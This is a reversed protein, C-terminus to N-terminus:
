SGRGDQEGLVLSGAGCSTRVDADVKGWQEKSLACGATVLWSSGPLAQPARTPRPIDSHGPLVGKCDNSQIQLSLHSLLCTRVLLLM